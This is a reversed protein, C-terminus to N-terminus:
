KFFSHGIALPRNNQTIVSGLQTSLADTYVELFVKITQTPWFWMQLPPKVADLAKQHVEDCHSPMLSALLKSCKAWLNHYYQVMGLFHHLEKVNTPLKLALIAQVKNPQPKIRDRTLIYM